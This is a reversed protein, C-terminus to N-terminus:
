TIIEVYSVRHGMLLSKKKELHVKPCVSPLFRELTPFTPFLKALQAVVLVVAGNVLTCPLERGRTWLAAFVEVVAPVEARMHLYVPVALLVPALVAALAEVLPHGVVHVHPYM